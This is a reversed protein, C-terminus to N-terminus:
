ADPTQSKSMFSLILAAAICIVFGIIIATTALSQTVDMGGEPKLM